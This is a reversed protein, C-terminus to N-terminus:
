FCLNHVSQVCEPSVTESTGSREAERKTFAALAALAQAGQLIEPWFRFATKRSNIQIILDLKKFNKKVNTDLFIECTETIGTRNGRWRPREQGMQFGSKRYIGPIYLTYGMYIGDQGICMPYVHYIWPYVM